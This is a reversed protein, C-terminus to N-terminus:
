DNDSLSIGEESLYESLLTRVTEDQSDKVRRFCERAEERRDSEWLVIGLVLVSIETNTAAARRLWDFAADNDGRDKLTMGLMTMSLTDGSDASSQMLELARDYEGRANLHGVLIRSAVADGKETALELWHLGLDIKGEGIFVRGLVQMAAVNGERAGGHIIELIEAEIETINGLVLPLQKIAVENGARLSKKTWILAEEMEGETYLLVGLIGAASASGTAAAHRAWGIAEEKAEGRFLNIALLNMAPVYGAEAANSLHRRAEADDGASELHGALATAAFHSGSDAAFRYALVSLESDEWGETALGILTCADPTSLSILLKGFEKSITFKKHTALNQAYQVLLDSAIYGSISGIEDAYASLPASAGRVPLTAWQLSQEFWNESATARQEGSLLSITLRLLMDQSMPQPHGLIRASVAATVLAGGLPSESQMWRHILEPAAALNETLRMSPGNNLAESIRPDLEAVIRARAQEAESFEVVDFRQGLELIRRVDESHDEGGAGRLQSYKDPWITGVIVVPKNQQLLLRQTTELSLKGPELFRQMEDLWIVTRTFDVDKEVLLNLSEANPPICLRWDGFTSRIAEYACRTKGSAARGVLLFFGGSAAKSQLSARLDADLDRPIYTPFEVSLDSHMIHPLPIAAHIGVLARDSVDKVLPFNNNNGIIRKLASDQQIELKSAETTQETLSGLRVQMFARAVLLLVGGTTALSTMAWKPWALDAAQLAQPGVTLVLVFFLPGALAVWRSRGRLKM